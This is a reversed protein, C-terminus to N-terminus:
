DPTGIGQQINLDCHWDSTLSSGQARSEEKLVPRGTGMARMGNTAAHKGAAVKIEWGGDCRARDM